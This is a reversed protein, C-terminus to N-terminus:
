KTFDFNPYASEIGGDINKKFEIPTGDKLRGVYWSIEKTWWKGDPIKRTEFKMNGFAEGIEKQVKAESWDDPFFTSPQEKQKWWKMDSTIGANNKQM